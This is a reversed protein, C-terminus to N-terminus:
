SEVRRIFTGVLELHHTQPFLDFGRLDRLALRQGLRRADRAFTGPDCSVYILLAPAALVLEEALRASLGRRPPDVVIAEPHGAERILTRLAGPRELDLVRFGQAPLGALRAARQAGRVAAPAADAGTVAYGAQLLPLTFLGAGCFLDLVRPAGAPPLRAAVQGTVYQALRGAQAPHVQFFTGPSVPFRLGAAAKYLVGEGAAVRIRGPQEEDGGTIVAIMALRPFELRLRELLLASQAALAAAQGPTRAHLTLALAPADTSTLGGQVTLRTIGMPAGEGPGPAAGPGTSLAALAASALRSFEAPALLCRQIPVPAGKEGHMGCRWGEPARVPVLELKDRYELPREAPVIAWGAPAAVRGIRELQEQAVQRKLATQAEYRLHQWHCGGCPDFHPCPPAVRDPSPALVEAVRALAYRPHEEIIEAAVTEGAIGREVLVAKGGARAVARGQAAFRELTLVLAGAM